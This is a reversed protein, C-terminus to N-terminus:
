LITKLKKVLPINAPLWQLNEITDKTVWKAAKHELLKPTNNEFLQCLFSYMILHFTPYDYTITEFLYDIKVAIGLEEQIERSLAQEKTEGTEIKGGPFEWFDQFEGYSRQTVFIKKQNKIIASVVEITKM